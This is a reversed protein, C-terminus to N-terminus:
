KLRGFVIQIAAKIRYSLKQNNMYVKFANIGATAFKIAEKKQVRKTQTVNKGSM